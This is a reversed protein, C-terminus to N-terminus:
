KGTRSRKKAYKKMDGPKIKILKAIEPDIEMEDYEEEDSEDPSDQDEPNENDDDEEEFDDDQDTSGHLHEVYTQINGIISGGQETRIGKTIIDGEIAGTSVVELLESAVVCGKVKGEIKIRKSKAEEIDLKGTRTVELSATSYITGQIDGGLYTKDASITGNFNGGQTVEVNVADVDGILEGSVKVNRAQISGECRAGDEIFLTDDITINGKFEGGIILSGEGKLNAEVTVNEKIISLDRTPTKIMDAPVSPTATTTKAENKPASVSQEEKKSGFFAM